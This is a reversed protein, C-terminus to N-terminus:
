PAVPVPVDTASTTGNGLEGYANHGWCYAVRRPTLACSHLNGGSVAGFTLGGSVAIPTTSSTTTGDGLQGYINWGWCYGAGATTVGCAGFGGTSV